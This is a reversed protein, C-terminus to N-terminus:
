ISLMQTTFTQIKNGVESSIQIYTIPKCIYYQCATIKQMCVESNAQKQKKKRKLQVWIVEIKQGEIKNKM